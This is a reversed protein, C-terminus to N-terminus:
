PAPLAFRNVAEEGGQSNPGILRTESLNVVRGLTVCCSPVLALIQGWVGRGTLTRSYLQPPHTPPHTHATSLPDLDPYPAPHHCSTGTLHSDM